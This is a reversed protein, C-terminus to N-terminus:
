KEWIMLVENNKRPQVSSKPKEFYKLKFKEEFLKYTEIMDIPFPPFHGAKNQLPFLLAIFLGKNKLVKYVVDRYETRRSPYIACYATYELVFNFKRPFLNGLKFLDKKLFDIKVKKLKANKKIRSIAQSSFDNATVEFGNEAFLIADHGSGCGLVLMKGRKLQFPSNLLDVFVQTPHNLDWHDEKRLYKENWYDQSNVYVFNAKM